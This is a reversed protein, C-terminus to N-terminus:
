KEKIKEPKEIKEEIKGTINEYEKGNCPPIVTPDDLIGKCEKNLKTCKYGDFYICTKLDTLYSLEEIYENVKSQNFNM